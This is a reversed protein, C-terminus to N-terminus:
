CTQQFPAQVQSRVMCSLLCSDSTAYPAPLWHCTLHTTFQQQSRLCACHPCLGMRNSHVLQRHEKHLQTSTATQKAHSTTVQTLSISCLLGTCCSHHQNAYTSPLPPPAVCHHKWLFSAVGFVTHLVTNIILMAGIDASNLYIPHLLCLLPCSV